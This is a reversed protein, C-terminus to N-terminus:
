AGPVGPEDGYLSAAPEAYSVSALRQEVFTLSTISALNCERLDPRHWLRKREAARRAMWIPLQHSVCVAERGWAARRAVKIVEVMRQVIESYAEGWSPRFPNYVKSLVNPDRVSRASLSLGEFRNAAEILRDDLTVPLDTRKQIPEATERTRDLPSSLLVAIDHGEFWDAAIDAMERGRDSLHFDPMRGYLVKSPNYVEGHRLLHVVTTTTM